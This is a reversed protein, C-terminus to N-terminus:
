LLTKWMSTLLLSMPLTHCSTVGQPPLRPPQSQHLCPLHSSCSLLPPPHPPPHCVWTHLSVLCGHHAMKRCCPPKAHELESLHCHLITITSSAKHADWAADDQTQSLDKMMDSLTEETDVIVQDRQELIGNFAAIKAQTNALKNSYETTTNHLDQVMAHLDCCIDINHQAEAICLSEDHCHFSRFIHESFSDCLGCTGADHTVIGLSDNYNWHTPSGTNTGPMINGQTPLNTAMYPLLPPMNPLAFHHSPMLGSHDTLLM